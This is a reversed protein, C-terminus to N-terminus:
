LRKGDRAVGLYNVCPFENTVLVIVVCFFGIPRDTAHRSYNDFLFFLRQALLDSSVPIM